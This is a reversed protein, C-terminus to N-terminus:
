QSEVRPLDAPPLKRYRRRRWLLLGCWLGSYISVLLWHPLILTDGVTPYSFYFSNIWGVPNEHHRWQPMCSFGPWGQDGTPRPRRLASVDWPTPLGRRTIQIDLYGAGQTLHVSRGGISVHGKFESKASDGWAWLLFVLGPVGVWFAMSRFWRFRVSWRRGAQMRLPLGCRGQPEDPGCKGLSSGSNLIVALGAPQGAEISAWAAAM